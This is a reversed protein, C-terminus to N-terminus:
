VGVEVPRPSIEFQVPNPPFVVLQDLGIYQRPELLFVLPAVPQDEEIRRCVRAGEKKRTLAADAFSTANGATTPSANM